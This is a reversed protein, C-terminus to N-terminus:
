KAAPTVVKVLDGDNLFGAGSAVVAAEANIGELVEVRDALRRGTKVKVQSVRNDPNLRFVYSFGDRVVIAQQPVTLATSMGLDFEGKAFMGAKAPAVNDATPTLDVYVLASRTQPDVTPAFKRIRGKIETGNAATVVAPTGVRLKGLETATVEARWELRGQRILRFLETGAPVVAGVTASRSSIIGHDPATLRAYKLRLQQASLTAKAAEVKAKATQETTLYQNIQQTSLAGTEQLTRARAANGAADAANAQAEMLTARAQAVDAKVSEDAFTALIQGARVTDGVNVRVDTLRLGNSESGVIAEQWAAINGNAGLKVPVNAQSPKITTVTLAPKPGPGGKDDAAVSKGSVLMIAIASLVAAAFLAISLPKLFIRKM